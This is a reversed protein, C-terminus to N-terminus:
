ATSLSACLRPESRHVSALNLAICLPSTSIAEASQISDFYCLGLDALFANTCWISNFQTAATVDVHSRAPHDSYANGDQQRSSNCIVDLM